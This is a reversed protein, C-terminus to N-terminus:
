VITHVNSSTYMPIKDSQRLLTTLIFVVRIPLGKGANHIIEIGTRSAANECIFHRPGLYISQVSVSPVGTLEDHTMDAIM